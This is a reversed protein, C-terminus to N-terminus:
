SAPCGIPPLKPTGSWDAQEEVLMLLDAGFGDYNGVPRIITQHAWSGQPIHDQYMPGIVPDVKLAKVIAAVRHDLQDLRTQDLNVVDTLFADFAATVTV